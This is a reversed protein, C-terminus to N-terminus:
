FHYNVGFTVTQIDQKITSPLTVEGIIAFPGSFSPSGSGFDYYAYDLDASWNQWFAWEVGGGIMWGSRTESGRLDFPEDAFTGSVNYKDGAWAVGGKAYILWRDWAYGVRAAGSAIWNTQPNFVAKGDFFPDSAGRLNAWSDAVEVGAVWNTAFQYNCGIQGGGLWGNIDAVASAGASLLEFDTLDKEGWGGGLHGGVYCGSWSFSSVPAPAPAPPAAFVPNIALVVAAGGLLLEKM